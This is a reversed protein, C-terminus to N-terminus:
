FLSLLASLPSSLASASGSEPGRIVFVEDAVVNHSDVVWNDIGTHYLGVSGYQAVFETNGVGSALIIGDSGLNAVRHGKRESTADLTVQDGAVTWRGLDGDLYQWKALYSTGGVEAISWLASGDQQARLDYVTAPTVLSTFYFQSGSVCDDTCAPLLARWKWGDWSAVGTVQLGGAHGFSGGAILKGDFVELSFVDSDVGNNLSSWQQANQSSQYNFTAVFNVVRGGGCQVFAGGAVLQGNWFVIDYVQKDCGGQLDEWKSDAVDINLRAINNLCVFDPSEPISGRSFQGGAYLYQNNRALAYVSGAGVQLPPDEPAAGVDIDWLGGGVPTIEGPTGSSDAVVKAVAGFTDVGHFAFEGGVYVSACDAEACVIDYVAGDVDNRLSVRRTFLPFFQTNLTADNDFFAASDAHVDYGGALPGAFFWQQVRSNYTYRLTSSDGLDRFGGGFAPSWRTGDFLAVGNFRDAHRRDATIGDVDTTSPPYFLNGTEPGVVVVKQNEDVFMQTVPNTTAIQFPEGVNTLTAGGTHSLVRYRAAYGPNAGDPDVVALIYRTTGSVAILHFEQYVTSNVSAVLDSWDSPVTTICPSCTGTVQSGTISGTSRAPTTFEPSLDTLVYVTTGDVTWDRINGAGASVSAPTAFTYWGNNAKSGRYITNASGAFFVLSAGSGVGYLRGPQVTNPLLLATFNATNWQIDSLVVSWENTATDFTYHAFNSVANSTAPPSNPINHIAAFDGAVWCSTESDCFVASGTGVPATRVSCWKSGDWFAVGQTVVESTTITTFTGVAFVGNGAAAIDNILGGGLIDPQHIATSWTNSSRNFSAFQSTGSGEYSAVGGLGLFNGGMFVTPRAAAFGILAVVVLALLAKMM